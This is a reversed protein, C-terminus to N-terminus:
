HALLVCVESHALIHATAGGLVLERIRSHGYAGMVVLDAGSEAARALIQEGASGYGGELVAGTAEIGHRALHARMEEVSADRASEHDRVEVVEVAEARALLPLADGVARVAERQGNWAVLVRRGVSRRAPEPPVVLVPRGCTLALRDALGEEAAGPDDAAVRGVIVVDAYRAHLTLVELPIGEVAHWQHEVGAGECAERFREQCRRAEERRAERQARIIDAPIQAEAYSPVQFIRTVHIGTLHAGQARAIATSLELRTAFGRSADAHVIIDKWCM